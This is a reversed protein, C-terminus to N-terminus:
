CVEQEKSKRLFVSLLWNINENQNEEEFKRGAVSYGKEAKMGNSQPAQQLGQRKNKFNRQKYKDYQHSRNEINENKFTRTEAGQSSQSQSEYYRQKDRVYSARDKKLFTKFTNDWTRKEDEHHFFPCFKCSNCYDRKCKFMKYYLPHFMSEFYNQSYKDKDGFRRGEEYYNAKYVFEEDDKNLSIVLRRRDREHHYFPCEYEPDTYQNHTAIERPYRPCTKHPCLLVKYLAVQAFSMVHSNTISNSFAGVEAEDKLLSVSQLLTKYQTIDYSNEFLEQIQAEKSIKPFNFFPLSRVFSHQPLVNQAKFYEIVDYFEQDSSDTSFIDLSFSM